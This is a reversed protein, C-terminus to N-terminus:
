TDFLEPIVRRAIPRLREAMLPDFGRYPWRVRTGIPAWNGIAALLKDAAHNSHGTLGLMPTIHRDLFRRIRSEWGMATHADHIMMEYWRQAGRPNLCAVNSYSGKAGLPLQSALLHGAAFIALKPALHAMREYWAADGGLVKIGILSPSAESLRGWARPELVRKAHSPNYLVIPVSEAAAAMLNLFDIAEDDTVPFWDPLIVQVAGPKLQVARKLRALSIVAATHSVGIQFSIGARECAQAVMLNVRDFECEELAFFEGATGHCYVGSVGSSILAALEDDLRIWDIAQNSQLPLLVTAWVGALTDCTLPQM